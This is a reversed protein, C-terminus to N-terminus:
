AIAEAALQYDRQSETMKGTAGGQDMGLLSLVANAETASVKVM